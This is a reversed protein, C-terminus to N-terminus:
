APPPTRFNAAYREQEAAEKDIVVPVQGDLRLSVNFKNHRFQSDLSELM